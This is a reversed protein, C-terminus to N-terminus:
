RIVMYIYTAGSVNTDANGTKVSFGTATPEIYDVSTSEINTTNMQLMPDSGSSVIGRAGDFVTWAGSNDIRKILIFRPAGSFGADVTVDSSLGTYSGIKSIGPFSAFVYGVYDTGSSNTNATEGSTFTSANRSPFYNNGPGSLQSSSNLKLDVGNATVYWDGSASRAKVIVLEPVTGLSHNLQRGAVGNGTYTVVDFVSPYRRFANVIHTHGSTALEDPGIKVSTQASSFTDLPVQSTNSSGSGSLDTFLRENGRLRDIIFNNTARSRGRAWYMDAPFGVDRSVVNGNGTHTTGNFVQSGSTPEKMPGRRIAMYVVEVGLGYMGPDYFGTATTRLHTAGTMEASTSNAYLLSASSATAPMTRAADLLTWNTTANAAKVLIFQPEWGLTVHPGTNSTVTYSGCQIVGDTATDHAFLYAVYSAGSVNTETGNTGGVYFASSTPATGGFYNAADATFGSTSNLDGYKGWQSAHWVRWNTVASTQKVVIMGPTIGLSHPIARNYTGDGTYKVIDLFRAAKRFSWGTYSAGSTNYYAYPGLSFGNTNFSTLSDAASAEGTTEESHLHMGVGRETDFLGHTHAASRGKIWVLGGSSYAPKRIALYVYSHGATANADGFGTSTPFLKGSTTATSEAAPSNPFLQRSSSGGTPAGRATDVIVWDESGTIQKKLIFQPEFGLNVYTTGSGGSYSGAQILGDTFSDHAFLYAVFTNGSGNLDVHSDVYFHNSTPATPFLSYTGAANSNNLNLYQSTGLSRHYVAWNTAANLRKVVIMGPVVGLNHAIQRNSTGDGTWSIVDFFKAAKRFSWAVESAGAINFGRLNSDAAVDFGNSTFATVSAESTLSTTENARLFKNTGNQTDFIIQTGSADRRKVWVMGGNGALDVGTSISQATGTGTYLTTSFRSSVGSTETGRFDIGNVITKSSGNGQYLYTSFVDEAYIKEATTVQFPVASGTGVTVYITTTVEYSASSTQRVQLTSGNSITGACSGWGASNVNCQPSTGSDGTVSLSVPIDIGSITVTNSAYVTARSANAVATFSFAAPATIPARTTVNWSQQVGGISLTVTTTTSFSASSTQRLKVYQGNSISGPTSQWASWTANDTSTAFEGGSVTVLIAKGIGTLQVSNSEIQSSPSVNNVALFTLSKFGEASYGGSAGGVQFWSSGYLQYIAGSKRVLALSGNAITQTNLLDLRSSSGGCNALAGLVDTGPTTADFCDVPDLWVAAGNKLQSGAGITLYRTADDGNALGTKAQTCNTQFTSDKGPSIVAVYVATMSAAGGQFYGSGASNSGHNWACYALLNGYADRKPAASAGPIQWGGTAGESGAIGPIVTLGAPPLPVGDQDNTAEAALANVAHQLVEANSLRFSTRTAGGLTSSIVGFGVASLFLLAAAVALIQAVAAGCQRKLSPSTM